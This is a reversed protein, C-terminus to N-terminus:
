SVTAPVARSNLLIGKENVYITFGYNATFTIM